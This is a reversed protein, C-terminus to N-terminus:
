LHDCLRLEGGRRNRPAARGAAPWRLSANPPMAILDAQQEDAAKLITSVVDGTRLAVPVIAGDSVCRVLPGSGGVHPLEITAGQENMPKLFERITGLAEVPPPSHDVPVLV